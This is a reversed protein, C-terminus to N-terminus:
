ETEFLCKAIKIFKKDRNKIAQIDKGNSYDYFGSGTKVGYRKNKIMDEFFEPVDSRSSLEGFINQSIYYFTDLGGLDAIEFPGLCAYRMGMGYKMVSDVDEISAAGSEVISLVERLVSFQIRNFIFGSIDKMLVVPHKKIKITIEKIVEITEILTKEAKVVEVLPVLHPPNIWHMGAFREPNKVATAIETLSLNSTNSALIINESVIGSIEKWFAKKIEMNEIIAEVVFDAEIFCSKETTYSIRSIISESEEKTINGELIATEQNLFILRRSREIIEETVDYLVVGYGAQAFVQAMSSGMIGAGAIVIKKISDVNIMEM